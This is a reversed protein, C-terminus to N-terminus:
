QDKVGYMALSDSIDTLYVTWSEGDGIPIPGLGVLANVQGVPTVFVTWTGPASELYPSTEQYALPSIAVSAIPVDPATRWLDIAPAGAAFNAVRLRSHGTPTTVSSDLVGTELTGSTDLAAVTISDGAGFTVDREAARAAPAGQEIRIRHMGPTVPHFTTTGGMTVGSFVQVADVKVTLSGAGALNVVRLSSGTGGANDVPDSACAPLLLAGVLLLSRLTKM